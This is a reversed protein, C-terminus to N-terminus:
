CPLRGVQEVVGPGLGLPPEQEPQRHDGTQAAALQARQPPPVDLEVARVEPDFPGDRVGACAQDLLVGLGLALAPQGEVRM